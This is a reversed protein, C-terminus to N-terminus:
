PRAAVALTMATRESARGCCVNLIGRTQTGVVVYTLDVYTGFLCSM